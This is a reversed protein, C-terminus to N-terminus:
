RATTGASKPVIKTGDVNYRYDSENDRHALLRAGALPIALALTLLLYIIVIVM